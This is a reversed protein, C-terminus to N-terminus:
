KNKIESQKMGGCTVRRCSGWLWVWGSGGVVGAAVSPLKASTLTKLHTDRYSSECLLLLKVWWWKYVVWKCLLMSMHLILFCLSPWITNEILFINMLTDAFICLAALFHKRSKCFTGVRYFKKSGSHKIKNDCIYRCSHIYIFYSAKLCLM